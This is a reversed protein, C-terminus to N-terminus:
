DRRREAEVSVRGVGDLTKPGQESGRTLLGELSPDMPFLPTFRPPELPLREQLLAM